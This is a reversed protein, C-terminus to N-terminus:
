SLRNQDPIRRKLWRGGPHVPLEDAQTRSSVWLLCTPAVLLVGRDPFEVVVEDMNKEAEGPAVVM